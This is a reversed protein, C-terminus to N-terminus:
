KKTESYRSNYTIKGRKGYYGENGPHKDTEVRGNLVALHIIIGKRSSNFQRRIIIDGYRKTKMLISFHTSFLLTASLGYIELWRYRGISRSNNTCHDTGSYICSWVVGDNNRKRRRTCLCYLSRDWLQLYEM